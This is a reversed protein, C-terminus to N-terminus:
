MYVEASPIPILSVTSTVSLPPSHRVRVGLRMSSPRPGTLAHRPKFPRRAFAGPTITGGQPLPLKRRPTVHGRHGHPCGQPRLADIAM